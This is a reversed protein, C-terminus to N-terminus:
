EKFEVLPCYKDKWGAYAQEIIDLPRDTYGNEVTTSILFVLSVAVGVICSLIFAMGGPTPPYSFLGFGYAVFEALGIFFLGIYAGICWLLVARWFVANVVDCLTRPTNGTNVWRRLFTRVQGDKKLTIM